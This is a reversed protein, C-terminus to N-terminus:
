ARRRRAFVVLVAGAAAAALLGLPMLADVNEAAQGGTGTNVVTPAAAGTASLQGRAVGTPPAFSASHINVYFEGPTARLATAVDAPVQVTAQTGASIAAVDLPVVVPGNVGTAGSHIHGLTVPEDAGGVSLTYTLTGDVALSLAGAVTAGEQGSGSPVEQAGSGSVTLALPGTDQAGAGTAVPGVLLAASAAVLAASLTLTTRHM